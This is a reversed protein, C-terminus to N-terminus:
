SSFVVHGNGSEPLSSNEGVASRTNAWAPLLREAAVADRGAGEARTIAALRRRLALTLVKLTIEFTLFPKAILDSLDGLASEARVDYDAQDTVFVVATSRSSNFDRIESCFKAADTGPTQLDLFIVDYVQAAALTLATGIDGALDPPPFARKLARAVTNYSIANNDVVLLKIPRASLRSLSGASVCLNELMDVGGAVTRLTSATVNAPKDTLQKLLGELASAVQWVPLLWPLGAESKLIHMEWRLAALMKHRGLADSARNIEQLLSRQLALLKIARSHFEKVAGPEATLYEQRTAGSRDGYLPQAIRATTRPPVPPGAQLATFFATVGEEEEARFVPSSNDLGAATLVPASLQQKLSGLLELILKRLSLIGAVLLLAFILVSWHFGRPRDGSSQAATPVVSVNAAHKVAFATAVEDGVADPIAVRIRFREQRERATRRESEQAQSSVASLSEAFETTTSEPRASSQAFGVVLSLVVVALCGALKVWAARPGGFAVRDACGNAGWRYQNILVTQM